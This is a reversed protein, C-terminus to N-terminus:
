VKMNITKLSVSRYMEKNTDYEDPKTTFTINSKYFYHLHKGINKISQFLKHLM